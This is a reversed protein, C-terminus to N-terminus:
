APGGDLVVTLAQAIWSRSPTTGPLSSGGTPNSGVVKAKCTPEFGQHATRLQAAHHQKAQDAGRPKTGSGGQSVEHRITRERMACAHFPRRRESGPGQAQRRKGHEYGQIHGSPEYAFSKALQM